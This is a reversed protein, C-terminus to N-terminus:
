RPRKSLASRARMSIRDQGACERQLTDLRQVAQSPDENVRACALTARAIVIESNRQMTEAVGLPAEVVVEKGELIKYDLFFRQLERAERTDILARMHERSEENLGLGEAIGNFVEVSDRFIANKHNAKTNSFM